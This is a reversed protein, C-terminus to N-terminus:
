SVGGEPPRGPSRRRKRPAREGDRSVGARGNGTRQPTDIKGNGPRPKRGSRRARPAPAPTTQRGPKLRPPERQPASAQSPPAARAQRQAEGAVRRGPHGGSSSALPRKRKVPRSVPAATQAARNGRSGAGREGTSRPGSSRAAVPRGDRAGPRAAAATSQSRGGNAQSRRAARRSAARQPRGDAARAGSPPRRSGSQSGDQRGNGAPGASGRNPQMARRAQRPADARIAGADALRRRVGRGGPRDAQAGNSGGGSRRGRGTRASAGVAGGALVGAAGASLVGSRMGVRAIGRRAAGVPGGEPAGLAGAARGVSRGMSPVGELAGSRLRAHSARVREVGPLSSRSRDGGAHAGRGATLGGLGLLHRAQGLLLLPLRVAILFTALGAFAAEVHGPLGGAGGTFSTADLCLAGATAFIVAWVLPILSVALLMHMWTRALHSLEPVVSAAILPPGAVILLALILTVLVQVAFLAAALIVGVIVLLAGLVGGAGTLLAGGFLVGIIRALGKSVVPFGLIAHTLTNAGAVTQSVIWPYAVLVLAVGAARGVAFIPHGAGALGAIWYRLTSAALLVPLLSVGLFTMDGQLQSIHTWTAPDPLAVLHQIAGVTAHSLWEPVLVHALAGFFDKAIAEVIGSLSPLGPLGLLAVPPM